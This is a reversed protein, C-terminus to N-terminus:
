AAVEINLPLDDSTMAIDLKNLSCRLMLDVALPKKPAIRNFFEAQLKHGELFWCLTKAIYIKVKM